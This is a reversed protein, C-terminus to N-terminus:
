AGLEQAGVVIWTHEHAPATEDNESSARLVEAAEADTIETM